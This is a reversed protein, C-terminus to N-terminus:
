RLLTSVLSQMERPNGNTLAKMAEVHKDDVTVRVIGVRKYERLMADVEGHSFRPIDVTQVGDGDHQPRSKETITKSIGVSECAATVAVHKADRDTTADIAEILHKTFRLQRAPINKKSRPGTVEHMDSPGFLTNFQDVVFLVKEGRKALEQLQKVVEIACDVALTSDSAGAQAYEFLSVDSGLNVSEEDKSAAGKGGRAKKAVTAKNKMAEQMVQVIADSVNISGLATKNPENAVHKLFRMAIDPTEWLGDQGEGTSKSFYSLRTLELGDPVYAVVWGDERARMVLRALAVSKGSGRSGRVDIRSNSDLAARLADDSQRALLRKSLAPKKKKGSAAGEDDDPSVQNAFAFEHTLARVSDAEPLTSSLMEETVDYVRGATPAESAFGRFSDRLTSPKSLASAGGRVFHVDSVASSASRGVGVRSSLAARHQEVSAGILGRSSSPGPANVGCERAIKSAHRRSSARFMNWVSQAIFQARNVRPREGVRPSTSDITRQNNDTVGPCFSPLLIWLASFSCRVTVTWVIPRPAFTLSRPLAM